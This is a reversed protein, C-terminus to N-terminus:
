KGGAMYISDAVPSYTASWSSNLDGPMSRVKIGDYNLLQVIFAVNDSIDALAEQQKKIAEKEEDIDVEMIKSSEGSVDQNVQDYVGGQDTRGVYGMENSSKESKVPVTSLGSGGLIEIKEEGGLEKLNPTLVSSLASINKAYAGLYTLGATAGRIMAGADIKTSAGIGWPDIEVGLDFMDVVKAAQDLTEYMINMALSDAMDLGISTLINKQMNNFIESASTRSWLNNTSLEDEVRNITAQYSAMNSAIKELSEDTLNLVSTIDSMTLGFLDAYQNMAALNGSENVQKVLKYFGSLITSVDKVGIGSALMDGYSREGGGKQVSLAMLQQLANNGALSDVDGSGLYGLGQALATITQSSVGLSSFSGLWKQVAYEFEVSAEKTMLAEAELIYGTVQDSLGHLYESNQFNSNLYEQLLSEMGLRAQTSDSQQIRVIRLLNQDLADFTKVIKDSMTALSARLEVNYNIGSEVMETTKRLADDMSFFINLSFVKSLKESVSDYNKTSGILGVELREVYDAYDKSAQRINNFTENMAGNVASVMAETLKAQGEALKLQREASLKDELTAAYEIDEKLKNRKDKARRAEEDAKLRELDEQFEMQAKEADNDYKAMLERYRKAYAEARKKEEKTKGSDSSSSQDGQSEEEVIRLIFENENNSQNNGAM